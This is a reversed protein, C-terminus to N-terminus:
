LLTCEVAATSGDHSVRVRLPVSFDHNSLDIVRATPHMGLAPKAVGVWGDATEVAVTLQGNGRQGISDVSPHWTCM